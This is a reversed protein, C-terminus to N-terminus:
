YADCGGKLKGRSTELLLIGVRQFIRNQTGIQVLDVCLSNNPNCKVGYKKCGCDTTVYGAGVNPKITTFPYDAIVVDAMTAAKFFSSKGSSPKGVLGIQM